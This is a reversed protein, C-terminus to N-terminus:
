DYMLLLYIFGIFTFLGAGTLFFLTDIKRKIWFNPMIWKVIVFSVITWFLFDLLFPPWSASPITDDGLPPTPYHFATFPFGGQAIPDYMDQSSPKIKRYSLFLSVWLFISGLGIVMVVQQFFTYSKLKM